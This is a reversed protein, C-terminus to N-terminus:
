KVCCLLMLSQHIGNFPKWRNPTCIIISCNRTSKDKKTEYKGDNYHNDDDERALTVCWPNM